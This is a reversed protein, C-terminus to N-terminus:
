HFRYHVGVRLSMPGMRSAEQGFVSGDNQFVGTTTRLALLNFVDAFLELPQKILPQLAVRVQLNLISRDPLRLPIDDDPTLTGRSDKGRQSRFDTFGGQFTNYYYHNYPGGSVFRYTGGLSLWQNVKYTLLAQLNHRNDDPLPGYYYITQGPNDLYNGSYSTNSTGESRTWTYAALAQLRGERKRLAVTVSHYRNRAEDPTELDYVFQSRGSKWSGERRVETGGMNWIANTEVDEWLHEYRRYIYDFGLSIGTVIEREAGLTAEWVRPPRLKGRCSTGDPNVGEPGCPLGVTTGGDGGSSSCNRIYAMAQPDWDCLKTFLQRSSQSPLALFGPDVRSQLSARIATRGDHTADWVAALAPTATFLGSVEVGKDNRSQALHVAIEPTITLYRTPKWADSIFALTQNASIDSYIWNHHCDGNNNKPDNSCAEQLQFPMTGANIIVANGPVTRAFAFGTAFFKFGVRLDQTGLYKSESTFWDVAADLQITQSRRRQIATSNQRTIGSIVDFIGPVSDCNPDWECSQPGATLSDQTLALTSRLSLSDSLASFWQLSLARTGQTQRSEAEAEVLYSQDQNNFVAPSYAIKAELKNRPTIQWTLKATGDFFYSRYSPHRPFDQDLPLTFTQAIGQGSVYFWLRDKQIPGGGSLSAQVTRNAGVDRSDKFFDMHQDDYTATGELEFRNSGSKTVVNTLGGLTDSHEAGFGATIVQQQAQADFSFNTGFTHTVPDTTRVGDVLYNNNFFAGGRVNPNGGGSIDNVGPALNMVGQYSRTGLPLNSVFEQDFTEGVQPSNTNVTPAREVVRVQEEATEVEMLIDLENSAAATVRVNKQIVTKLHLATATVTFVGPSLNQLRYHGEDDTMVSRPGGIQIDSSATVKVGRIPTGSQDYVHGSLNGVTQALAAAPLAILFGVVAGIPVRKSLM